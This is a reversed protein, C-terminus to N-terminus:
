NFNQSIERFYKEEQESAVHLYPLFIFSYSDVIGTLNATVLSLSDSSTSSSCVDGLSHGLSDIVRSVTETISEKAPCSPSSAQTSVVPASQNHLSLSDIVFISIQWVLM